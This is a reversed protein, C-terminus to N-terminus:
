LAEIAGRAYIAAARFGGAIGAEIHIDELAAPDSTNTLASLVSSDHGDAREDYSAALSELAEHVGPGTIASKEIAKAVVSATTGNPAGNPINNELLVKDLSKFAHRSLDAMLASTLSELIEENLENNLEMNLAITIRSM